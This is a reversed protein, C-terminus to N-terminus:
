IGLIGLVMGILFGAGSCFLGWGLLRYFGESTLCDYTKQVLRQALHSQSMLSIVLTWFRIELTAPLARINM